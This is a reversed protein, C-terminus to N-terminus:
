VTGSDTANDGMNELHTKGADDSGRFAAHWARFAVDLVSAGAGEVVQKTRVHTCQQHVYIYNKRLHWLTVLVACGNIRRHGLDVHSKSFSADRLINEDM